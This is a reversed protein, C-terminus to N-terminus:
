TISKQLVNDPVSTDKLPKARQEQLFSSLQAATATTICLLVLSQSCKGKQLGYPMSLLQPLEICLKCILFDVSSMQNFCVTSIAQPASGGRSQCTDNIQSLQAVHEEPLASKSSTKSAAAPQRGPKPRWSSFEWWSYIRNLISIGVM